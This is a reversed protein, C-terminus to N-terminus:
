MFLIWQCWSCHTSLTSGVDIIWAVTFGSGEGWWKMRETKESEKLHQLVGWLDSRILAMPPWPHVPDYILDEECVMFLALTRTGGLGRASASLSNHTGLVTPRTRRKDIECCVEDLLLLAAFFFAVIQCVFRLMCWVCHCKNKCSQLKYLCITELKGAVQLSLRNRNLGCKFM